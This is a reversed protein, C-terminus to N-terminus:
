SNQSRLALPINYKIGKIVANLVYDCRLIEFTPFQPDNYDAQAVVLWRNWRSKADEIDCYLGCPYSASYRKEFMEHYYDVCVDQSPRLQLHYTIADKSMTQNSAVIYKIDMPVKRVNNWPELNDLQTQESDHYWDYFYGIRSEIENNWSFEEIMDSMAKRIKGMNKSKAYADYNQLTIM